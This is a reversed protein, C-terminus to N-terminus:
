HNPIRSKLGSTEHIYKQGVRWSNIGNHGESGPTCAVEELSKLVWTRRKNEYSSTYSSVVDAGEGVFKLRGIDLLKWINLNNRLLVPM